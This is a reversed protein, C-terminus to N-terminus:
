KLRGFLGARKPAEPRVGALDRALRRFTAALDNHNDLALPRGRNLAQLAARYGSPVAHRVRMGLATEVDPVGIDAQRDSRSLVVALKERGYRGRLENLLRSASKVTALEQNVVVVLTTLQDLCDLVAADSRPLDFVVYRYATRVFDILERLKTPDVAGAVARDPAALLDINGAVRTTISHLLTEDLRRTDELADVVSFRPESGCFIAADGGAQHLDALLCREDQALSGLAMAVNVAITTTGVGGKAGVFGFLRGPEGTLRRHVVRAIATDLDAQSVPDSVLENVGARMAELLLAPELASVVIVVGTTPHQRRIAAVAPPLGASGRLDLVIAEPQRAAATALTPLLSADLHSVRAGTRQVLELLQRDEAGVVIVNL